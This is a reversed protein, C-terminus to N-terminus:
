RLEPRILEDCLSFSSRPRCAFACQFSAPESAQLSSSIDDTTSSTVQQTARVTARRCSSGVSSRCTSKGATLIDLWRSRCANTSRTSCTPSTCSRSRRRTRPCDNSRRQPRTMQDALGVVYLEAGKFRLRKAENELVTLGNQEFASQVRPGDFWVDHNGLVLLVGLPARLQSLEAAIAEPPVRHGFRVHSIYDGALLVLDPQEANTRRVLEPLRDVGWHPSGVHLDSLLAVRLGRLEAPWRALELEERRVVLTRPGILTAWALLGLASVLVASALTRLRSKM